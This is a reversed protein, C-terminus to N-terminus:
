LGGGAGHGARAGPRDGTRGDTAGADAGQGARGDAPDGTRRGALGHVLRTLGIVAVVGLDASGAAAHGTPHGPGGDAGGDGARRPGDGPRGDAGGGPGAGPGAGTRGIRLVVGLPRRVGVAVADAAVGAPAALRSGAGGAPPAPSARLAAFSRGEGEPSPRDNAAGTSLPMHPMM